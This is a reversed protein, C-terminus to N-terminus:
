EFQRCVKRLVVYVINHSCTELGTVYITKTANGVAITGNIHIYTTSNITNTAIARCITKM